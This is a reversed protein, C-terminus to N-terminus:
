VNHSAHSAKHLLWHMTEKLVDPEVPKALYAQAGARLAEQRDELGARGSCFVIPTLPDFSRIERCLQLGTGDPLNSDLLYLDFQQSKALNLGDALTGATAVQYDALGLLVSMMLCTDENDDICLVRKRM